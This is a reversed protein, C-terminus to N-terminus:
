LQEYKSADFENSPITGTQGTAKDKVRITGTTAGASNYINNKATQIFSQLSALKARLVTASDNIGPTYSDLLKQENPTFSTGGRAKALTGKINGILNRLQEEEQSGTGFNKAMFQAITGQGGGGTGSFGIQEGLAITQSTLDGLTNWDAISSQQAASLKIPKGSADVLGSVVAGGGGGGGSGVPGRVQDQYIRSGKIAQAVQEPTATLPINIDPYKARANAVLDMNALTEGNIDAVKGQQYAQEFSTVGAAKFFEQPTSYVQGNAANFFEGNKNVFQTKVGSTLVLKVNEKQQDLTAQQQKASAEMKSVAIKEKRNLNDQNMSIFDKINNIRAQWDSFALAATKTAMAEAADFNSQAALARTALAGVVVAKQRQIASAEGMYFVAPTGSMIGRTEANQSAMNFDATASALQTNIDNLIKLKATAGTATEAKSLLDAQSPMQNEAAVLQNQSANLQGEATRYGPDQSYDGSLADPAVQPVTAATSAAVTSAGNDPTTGAPLNLPNGGTIQGSPVPAGTNPPPVNFQGGPLAGPTQAFFTQGGATYPNAYQQDITPKNTTVLLSPDMVGGIPTKTSPIKIQSNDGSYTPTVFSNDAMSISYQIIM